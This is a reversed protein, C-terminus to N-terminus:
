YTVPRIIRKLFGHNAEGQTATHDTCGGWTGYLATAPGGVGTVSPGRLGATVDTAVTAQTGPTGLTYCGAGSYLNGTTVGTKYNFVTGAAQQWFKQEWNADNTIANTTYTYANSGAPTRASVPAVALAPVSM